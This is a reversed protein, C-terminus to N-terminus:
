EDSTERPRAITIGQESLIEQFCGTPMSCLADLKGGIVPLLESALSCAATEKDSHGIASDLITWLDYLAEVAGTILRENNM